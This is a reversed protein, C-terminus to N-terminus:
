SATTPWQGEPAETLVAMGDEVYTTCARLRGGDAAWLWCDQCAGMLCFGARPEGGADNAGLSLGALCLAVLLTDGVLAEVVQGDVHITIAARDTEALRQFRGTM